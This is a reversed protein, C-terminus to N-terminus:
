FTGANISGQGMFVGGVGPIKQPIPQSQTPDNNESQRKLTEKIEILVNLQQEQVRQLRYQVDIGALGGIKQFQNSILQSFKPQIANLDKQAQLYNKGALLAEMSGPKNKNATEYAAKTEEVNKVLDDIKQVPSEMSKQLDKIESKLTEKQALLGKQRAINSEAEPTTQNGGGGRIGVNFQDALQDVFKDWGTDFNGTITNGILTAMMKMDLIAGAEAQSVSARSGPTDGINMLNNEESQKRLLEIQASQKESIFKTGGMDELKKKTKNVDELFMGSYKVLKKGFIDTLPVLEGMTTGTNRMHKQIIEMLESTSKTEIEIPTAGLKQLSLSEKSNRGGAMAKEKAVELKSLMNSVTEIDGGFKEAQKSWIQINEIPTETQRGVKILELNMQQLEEISKRITNAAMAFAGGLVGKIINGSTVLDFMSNSAKKLGDFFQSGDVGMKVIVKPDPM